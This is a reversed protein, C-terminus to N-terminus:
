CSGIETIQGDCCELLAPDFTKGACCERFKGSGNAWGQRGNDSLFPFRMPYEGCCSEVPEGIKPSKDMEMRDEPAGAYCSGKADFGAWRAHHLVNWSFELDKLDYALKVDCECVSRGCTGEKDLCKIYKEGTVPDQKAEFGYPTFQDCTEEGFDRNACLNCRGHRRCASDPADMPAGSGANQLLKFPGAAFCYCGYFCFKGFIPLMQLYVIMNKILKFKKINLKQDDTYSSRSIESTVQAFLNEFENFIDDDANEALMGTVNFGEFGGTYGEPVLVFDKETVKSSTPGTIAAANSPPPREFRQSNVAAFLLSLKM